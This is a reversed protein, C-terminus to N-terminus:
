RKKNFQPKINILFLLDNIIDRLAELALPLIRKAKKHFDKNNAKEINNQYTKYSSCRSYYSSIFSIILLFLIIITVVKYRNQYFGNFCIIFNTVLIFLLILSIARWVINHFSPLFENINNGINNDEKNPDYLCGFIRPYIEEKEDKEKSKLLLSRINYVILHDRRFATGNSLNLVNLFIFVGASILSVIHFVIDSFGWDSINILTCVGDEYYTIPRISELNIFVYGLIGFLAFFAILLQIFKNQHHNQNESFQAHLSLLLDMKKGSDKM